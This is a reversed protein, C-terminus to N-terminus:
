AKKEEEEVTDESTNPDAPAEEAKEEAKEEGGASTEEDAVPAEEAKEEGESTEDAM